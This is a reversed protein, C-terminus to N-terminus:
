GGCKLVKLLETDQLVTEQTIPLKTVDRAEVWWISTASHGGMVWNHHCFNKWTNDLDGLLM